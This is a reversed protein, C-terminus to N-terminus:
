RLESTVNNDSTGVQAQEMQMTEDDMCFPILKYLISERFYIIIFLIIALLVAVLVFKDSLFASYEKGRETINEENVPKSWIIKDFCILFVLICITFTFSFLIFEYIGTAVRHTGVVSSVFAIFCGFFGWRNCLPVIWLIVANCKRFKRILLDKESSNLHRAM